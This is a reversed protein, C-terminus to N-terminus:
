PRPRLANKKFFGIILKTADVAGDVGNPWVHAGGTTRYLSVTAGNKCRAYRILATTGSVQTTQAAGTCKDLSAWRKLATQVSYGWRPDDNGPFPNTTDATGHFTLIPVARKPACTSARPAWSDGTKGPVGARLGAVPAAAAFRTPYDCAMQSTMRAGGSMGTVYVRESDSCLTRSVKDLVALLYREDNPTGAPVPQGGVLPVGPVNWSYAGDGVKVGGNPAVVAFGNAGAAAALNTYAMQQEGSGGSGHLNFVVPIRRKGDYSSPVYLAFPRSQGQDTLAITRVGTASPRSCSPAAASRGAARASTATALAALLVVAVTLCTASTAAL